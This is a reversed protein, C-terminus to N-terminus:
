VVGNRRDLVFIYEYLVAVYNRIVYDMMPGFTSKIQLYLAIWLTHTAKYKHTVYPQTPSIINCPTSQMIRPGSWAFTKNANYGDTFDNIVKPVAYGQIAQQLSRGCKSTRILRGDDGSLSRSCSLVTRTLRIITDYPASIYSVGTM